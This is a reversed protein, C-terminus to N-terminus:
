AAVNHTCRARARVREEEVRGLRAYLRGAAYTAGRALRAPLAAGGSGGGGGGDSDSDSDSSRLALTLLELAFEPYTQQCYLGLTHM